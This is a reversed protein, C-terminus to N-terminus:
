LTTPGARWKRRRARRAIWALGAGSVLLTWTTPEPVARVFGATFDDLLLGDFDNSELLTVKNFPTTDTVGFFFVSGPDRNPVYTGLPVVVKTGLVTNELELSITNLVTDAANNVYAGFATVPQSLLIVDPVNTGGQVSPGNDLLSNKGSVSYLALNVIYKFTTTATIGTSGFTLSPTPTFAKLADLNDTGFTQLSGEFAARAALANTLAGRPNDDGIYTIPTARAVENLCPFGTAFLVLLAIRYRLPQM